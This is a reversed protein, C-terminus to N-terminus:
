YRGEGRFHAKIYSALCKRIDKLSDWFKSDIANRIEESHKEYQSIRVKDDTPPRRNPFLELAEELARRAETCGIKEFAELTYECQPDGPLSSGFLYRFGGNEVIGAVTWVLAVVREEESFDTALADDGYKDTIRRWTSDCLDFDSNGTLKDQDM